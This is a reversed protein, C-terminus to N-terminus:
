RRALAWGAAGTACCAALYYGILLHLGASAILYATMFAIHESLSVLLLFFLVLALGVLLYQVPHIPLAEADRVHLLRCLDAGRVAPRVQDRPRGHSYVNVPEIFGVSFSDVPQLHAPDAGLRSRAVAAARQDGALLDDMDRSAARALAHAVACAPLPRWVASAALQVEAHGHQEQRGPCLAPTRHRGAEASRSPRGQGSSWTPCIPAHLGSRLAQLASGQQFEVAGGNWNIKRSRQSAACM